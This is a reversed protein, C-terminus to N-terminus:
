KGKEKALLEDILPFVWSDRWLATRRRIFGTVDDETKPLPRDSLHAMLSHIYGFEAREMTLHRRLELLITRRGRRKMM